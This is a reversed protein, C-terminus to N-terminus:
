SLRQTSLHQDHSAKSLILRKKRHILTPDYASLFGFSSNRRGVGKISPLSVFSRSSNVHMLSQDEVRLNSLPSPLSEM